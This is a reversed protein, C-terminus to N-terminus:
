LVFTTSTHLFNLAEFISNSVGFSYIIKEKIPKNFIKQCAKAYISLQEGYANALDNIDEVRDTKFDLIILEDNEVFCIDVAGQIIVKENEFRKDLSNDIETAPVETLFRM